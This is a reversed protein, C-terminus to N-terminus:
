KNIMVKSSGSYVIGMIPDVITIVGAFPAGSLTGTVPCVPPMMCQVIDGNRAAPWADAENEDGTGIFVKESADIFVQVPLFGNGDKDEFHTIIPQTGDGDAFSVLVISGPTLKASMGAM